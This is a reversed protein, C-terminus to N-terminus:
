FGTLRKKVERMNVMLCRAGGITYQGWPRGQDDIYDHWARQFSGYHFSEVYRGEINAPAWRPCTAILAVDDICPSMM